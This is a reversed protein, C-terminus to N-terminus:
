IYLAIGIREECGCSYVPYVLECTRDVGPTSGDKPSSAWSLLKKDEM